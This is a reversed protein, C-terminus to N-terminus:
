ANTENLSDTIGLTIVLRLPVFFFLGLCFVIGRQEKKDTTGGSFCSM